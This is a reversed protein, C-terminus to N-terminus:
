VQEAYVVRGHEDKEDTKAYIKGVVAGLDQTEATHIVNRLPLETPFITKSGDFDRLIVEVTGGEARSGMQMGFM